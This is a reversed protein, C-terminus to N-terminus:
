RTRDSLDLGGKSEESTDPKGLKLITYGGFNVKMVVFADKSIRVVGGQCRYKYGLKDLTDLLILNKKLGSDHRVYALLMKTGIHLKIRVGDMGVVDCM